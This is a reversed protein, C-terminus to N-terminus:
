GSYLAHMRLSFEGLPSPLDPSMLTSPSHYVSTKLFISQGASLLTQTQRQLAPYCHLMIYFSSPPDCLLM